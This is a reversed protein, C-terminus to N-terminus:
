EKLQDFILSTLMNLDSNITGHMYQDYVLKNDPPNLNLHFGKELALTRIFERQARGNGERFPHLYNINDLIEALKSAIANKDIKDLAKYELILNDIFLLATDFLNTLFFQKGDKSIEVRRKEGAWEYVDQFLHHHIKLLASSDIIRIPNDFLEEIRNSVKLSEYALLVKEDEINPLNRLVGNKLTYQNIPDLYNYKNKPSQM